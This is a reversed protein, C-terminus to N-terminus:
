RCKKEELDDILSYAIQVANTVDQRLRQIEKRLMRVEPCKCEECGYRMDCM